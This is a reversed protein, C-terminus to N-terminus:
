LLLIFDILNLNFMGFVSHFVHRGTSSKRDFERKRPARETGHEHDAPGSPKGDGERRKGDGRGGFRGGHHKTKGHERDVRHEKGIDVDAEVAPVTSSANEKKPAKKELTPDIRYM